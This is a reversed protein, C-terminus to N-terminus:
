FDCKFTDDPAVGQKECSDQLGNAGRSSTSHPETVHVSRTPERSPAGQSVPKAVPEEVQSNPEIHVICEDPTVDHCSSQAPDCSEKIDNGSVVQFANM